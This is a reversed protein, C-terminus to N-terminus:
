SPFFIEEPKKGLVESRPTGFTKEAARNFETIEGSHSITIIPDLASELIAISAVGAATMSGTSASARSGGSSYGFGGDSQVSSRWWLCARKLVTEDIPLGAGAAAGLALVAFQTNSNDGVREGPKLPYTWQGNAAQGRVLADALRQM